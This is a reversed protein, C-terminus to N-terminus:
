DSDEGVEDAKEEGGQANAFVKCAKEFAAARRAELADAEAKMDAPAKSQLLNSLEKSVTDTKGINRKVMGTYTSYRTDTSKKSTERCPDLVHNSVAM